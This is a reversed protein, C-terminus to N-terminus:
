RVTPSIPYRKIGRVPTSLKMVGGCSSRRHRFRQHQQSSGTWDKEFTYRKTTQHKAGEIRRQYPCIFSFGVQFYRRLTHPTHYLMKMKQQEAAATRTSTGVECVYAVRTRLDHKIVATSSRSCRASQIYTTSCSTTSPSVVKSFVPVLHTYGM